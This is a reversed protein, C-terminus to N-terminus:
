REEESYGDQPYDPQSNRTSIRHVHSNFLDHHRSFMLSKARIDTAFFDHNLEMYDDITFEIATNCYKLYERFVGYNPSYHSMGRDHMEFLRRMMEYTKTIAAENRQELVLRAAKYFRVGISETM